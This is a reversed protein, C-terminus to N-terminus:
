LNINFSAPEKLWVDTFPHYVANYMNLDIPTSRIYYFVKRQTGPLLRGHIISHLHMLRSHMLDSLNHTDYNIIVEVPVNKDVDQLPRLCDGVVAFDEVRRPVNIDVNNLAEIDALIHRRVMENLRPKVGKRNLLLAQLTPEVTVNPYFFIDPALSHELIINKLLEEYLINFRM